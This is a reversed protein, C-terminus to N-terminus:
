KSFPAQNCVIQADQEVKKRANATIHGKNVYTQYKSKARLGNQDYNKLTLTSKFTLLFM